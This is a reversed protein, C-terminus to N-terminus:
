QYYVHQIFSFQWVAFTHFVYRGTEGLKAPKHLLRRPHFAIDLGPRSAAAASQHVYTM